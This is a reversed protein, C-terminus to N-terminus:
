KGCAARSFATAVSGPVNHNWENDNFSKNWVVEGAGMNGSYQVIALYNIRDGACDFRYKSKTSLYLQGDAAKQASKLDAMVWAEKYQGNTRITSPEIYFDAADSYTVRKWDASATGITAFCILLPVLLKKM